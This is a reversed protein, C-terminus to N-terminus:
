CAAFRYTSSGPATVDRDRRVVGIRAGVDRCARRYGVDDYEVDVVQNGFAYTYSRCEAYRGCQEAVALDFGIWERSVHRGLQPTNKQAVSLGLHHAARTLLRAYAVAQAQGFPVSSELPTGDFRTWSDLNDLEVAQFGKRRCTQLMPQVWRAAASRKASTSLDVLYEGGWSPDDGLRTLVLDAPWRSREDPRDVSPDDDQTQFANVYCISYGRGMPRGEFWDRSVVDVGARPRYASGIQYDFTADAPVRPRTAAAAPGPALVGAALLCAVAATLLAPLTRAPRM